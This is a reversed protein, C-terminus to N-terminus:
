RRIKLGSRRGTGGDRGPTETRVADARQGVTTFADNDRFGAGVCLTGRVSHADARAVARTGARNSEVCSKRLLRPM